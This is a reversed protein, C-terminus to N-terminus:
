KEANGMFADRDSKRVIERYACFPLRLISVSGIVPGIPHITGLSDLPIYWSFLLGSTYRGNYIYLERWDLYNVYRRIKVQAAYLAFASIRM